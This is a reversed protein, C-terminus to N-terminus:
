SLFFAGVAATPPEDRLQQPPALATARGEEKDLFLARDAIAYLSRLEHSVLVLTTGLSDRLQLILQDLRSSTAPDLGAQPEDFFLIEPDLALARALAGRKKMGGSLEAPLVDEKGALGVLSLKYSAILRIQKETYNTYYRLPLAINDALTLSSWLAGSQYLVGFRRQCARRASPEVELFSTEGYWVRGRRVPHLGIMARMLTSKGCGSSGVIAFVEGKRIGFDLDRMLVTEGFQLDLHEVRIATTGPDTM